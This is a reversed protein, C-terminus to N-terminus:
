QFLNFTKTELQVVIVVVFLTFVFFFQFFFKILNFLIFFISNFQMYKSWIVEEKKVTLNLNICKIERHKNLFIFYIHQWSNM